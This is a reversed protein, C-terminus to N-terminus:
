QQQEKKRQVNEYGQAIQKAASKTEGIGILKGGFSVEYETTFETGHRIRSKAIVYQGQATVAFDDKWKLRAPRQAEPSNTTTTM